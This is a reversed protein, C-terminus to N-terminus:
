AFIYKRFTYRYPSEEYPNSPYYDEVNVFGDNRYGGFSTSKERRYRIKIKGQLLLLNAEDSQYELPEEPFYEDGSLVGQFLSRGEQWGEFANIVEQETLENAAKRGLGPPPTIPLINDLDSPTPITEKKDWFRRLIALTQRSKLLKPNLINLLKQGNDREIQTFGFEVDYVYKNRLIELDQELQFAIKIKEKLFEVYQNRGLFTSNQIPDIFDKLEVKWNSVVINALQEQEIALNDVKGSLDEIDLRPGNDIDNLIIEPVVVVPIDSNPTTSPFGLSAKLAKFVDGEIEGMIRRKVGNNMYYVVTQAKEEALISGNSFFPHEDIIEDLQSELQNIRENLLTIEEDRPSESYNKIYDNSQKIISNHSNEGFKPIDYFLENYLSFFRDTNIPDKTKFLESFSRDIIGQTSKASYLTKTLKINENAM